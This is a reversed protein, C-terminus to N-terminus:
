GTQKEANRSMDANKGKRVMRSEAQRFWDAKQRSRDAKRDDM